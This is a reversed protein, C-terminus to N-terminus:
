QEELLSTPALSLHTVPIRHRPGQGRKGERGCPLLSTCHRPADGQADLVGRRWVLKREQLDGDRRLAAGEGKRPRSGQPSGCPKIASTLM